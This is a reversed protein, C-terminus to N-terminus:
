EFARQLEGCGLAAWGTDLLNFDPTAGLVRPIAPALGDLPDLAVPPRNLTLLAYAWIAASSWGSSRRVRQRGCPRQRASPAWHLSGTGPRRTCLFGPNAVCDAATAVAGGASTLLNRM